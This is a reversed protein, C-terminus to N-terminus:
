RVVLERKLARVDVPRPESMTVIEREIVVENGTEGEIGIGEEIEIGNEIEQVHDHVNVIVGHLVQHNMDAVITNVAQIIVVAAV